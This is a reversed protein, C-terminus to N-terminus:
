SAEGEVRSKHCKIILTSPIIRAKAGSYWKAPNVTDGEDVESEEIVADIVFGAGILANIFTSVKRNHMVIPTGRWAEHREFSESVYSRRFKLVEDSYEVVSHVPHEWSFVFIGGPKLSRHVHSLTRPLDVTWGLAYISVAKDFYNEPLESMEEMPAEVLVVPTDLKSVVQRATEIQAGSLDVGCLERAGRKALYELTHGSGCGVELIACDAVTGLLNLEEESPAYTGYSLREFSGEFFQGAVKNWGEKNMQIMDKHQQLM